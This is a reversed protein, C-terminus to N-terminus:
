INPKIIYKKLKMLRDKNEKQDNNKYAYQNLHEFIIHRQSKMLGDKNEKQSNM